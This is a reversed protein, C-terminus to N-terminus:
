NSYLRKVTNNTEATCCCPDALPVCIDGGERIEEGGVMRGELDDSLVSILERRHGAPLDKKKEKKLISSAGSPRNNFVATEGPTKLFYRSGPQARCTLILPGALRGVPLESLSFALGETMDLDKTVGDVTVQWAGRDMFHELCSYKFPNGNGKELPDERGLSQVRTDQRVPLNNAM